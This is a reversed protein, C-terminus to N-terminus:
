RRIGAAADWTSIPDNEKGGTLKRHIEEFLDRSGFGGSKSLMLRRCGNEPVTEFLVTGSVIEGLPDIERCRLQQMVGLLTDGGIIMPLYRRSAVSALLHKLLAGLQRAVAEGIRLTERPTAGASTGATDILLERGSEMLRILYGLFAKGDRTDFYGDSLREPGLSIRVGGNCGAYRLQEKTIPNLSGCVVLLPADLYPLQVPPGELGLYPLLGAAFGACGGLVHLRNRGCLWDAAARFDANTEVDFIGIAPRGNEELEWRDDRYYNHVQASYGRFLDAVYPSTVPEFPDKGFVSNNILCGDVYQIGRRTIRGMSPLAPAFAAFSAGTQDLAAQMMAGINGRLGSDVKIYISESGNKVAERVVDACNSYAKRPDKHRLAANVLTVSTDTPPAKGACYEEAAVVAASVRGNVFQVGTDLAGTLDDAIVTLRM